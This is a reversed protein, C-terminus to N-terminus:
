HRRKIPDWDDGVMILEPNDKDGLYLKNMTPEEYKIM